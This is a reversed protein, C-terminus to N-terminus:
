LNLKKISKNIENLNKNIRNLSVDEDPPSKLLMNEICSFDM